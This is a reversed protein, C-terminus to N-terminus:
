YSPVVSLIEPRTGNWAQMKPSSIMVLNLGIVRNTCNANTITYYLDLFYGKEAAKQKAFYIYETLNDKLYRCNPTDFDTVTQSFGKAISELYYDENRSTVQFNDTVHYDRYLISLFLMATSVMVASIVFWQGKM